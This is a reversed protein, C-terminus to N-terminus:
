AGAAQLRASSVRVFHVRLIPDFLGIAHSRRISEHVLHVVVGAQLAVRDDVPLHDWAPTTAVSLDGAFVAAHQVGARVALDVVAASFSGWCDDARRNDGGGNNNNNNNRRSSSSPPTLKPLVRPLPSM